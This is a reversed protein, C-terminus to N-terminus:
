STPPLKARLFCAIMTLAREPQYSPVMHGAGRVTVLVLGKYEEVYGGVEQNSYWPRWKNSISLNLKKLANKTATIPVIGDTDGSYLWIPLGSEILNKIVPLTTQPRDKWQLLNCFKWDRAKAHLAKQVARDNLYLSVFDDTCPDFDGVRDDPKTERNEASRCNPAYINYWDISGIDIESEADFCENNPASFNCKERIKSYSEDSILAHGWQFEYTGEM